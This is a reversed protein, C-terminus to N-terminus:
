LLFGEKKKLLFTVPKGTVGSRNSKVSPDVVSKVVIRGKIDRKFFRLQVRRGQLIGVQFLIGIYM